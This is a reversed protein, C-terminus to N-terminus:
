VVVSVVDEGEAITKTKNEGDSFCKSGENGGREMRENDDFVMM